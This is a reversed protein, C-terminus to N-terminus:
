AEGPCTCAVGWTRIVYDSLLRNLAWTQERDRNALNRVRAEEEDPVPVTGIGTMEVRSFGALELRAILDTDEYGWDELLENYGGLQEFVAREVLLPSGHCHAYRRPRSASVAPGPAAALPAYGASRRWGAFWAPDGEGAALDRVIQSLTSTSSFRNDGNLFLLLDGASSRAGINRTRSFSFRDPRDCRIRELLPSAHRRLVAELDDRSGMDIIFVRYDPYDQRLLSPLSADLDGARDMMPIIIAISIAM